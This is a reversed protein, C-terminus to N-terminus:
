FSLRKRIIERGNSHPHDKQARGSPMRSENRPGRIILKEEIVMKGKDQGQKYASQLERNVREEAIVSAQGILRNFIHGSDNELMKTLDKGCPKPSGNYDRTADEVRLILIGEEFDAPIELRHADFVPPITEDIDLLLSTQLVYRRSNKFRRDSAEYTAEVRLGAKYSM